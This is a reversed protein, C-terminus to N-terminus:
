MVNMCVQAAIRQLVKHILGDRGREPSLSGGRGCPPNTSGGKRGWSPTARNWNRNDFTTQKMPEYMVCELGGVFIVSTKVNRCMNSILPAHCSM